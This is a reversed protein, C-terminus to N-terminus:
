RVIAIKGVAGKSGDNRAAAVMYVGSAVPRGQPDKGNWTFTGGNSRGQHVLRGSPSLIKVDADATFGTVTILGTFGPEVPNPYAVLQGASMDDAPASADTQLSCLGKDTGIYLMGTAPDMAMAIINDSILPSNEQTYNALQEQNDASILYLGGGEVAMWKRGAGDVVIASVSAGALLYDALGSGDNRAVKVQTLHPVETTAGCYQAEVMLPGQSTGIWINGELDEALCKRTYYSLSTGDENVMDNGLTKVMQGTAPDFCFTRPNGWHNDNFWILGRSDEYLHRFAVEELPEWPLQASHDHWQGERDIMIFQNGRELSRDGSASNLLWLRGQRDYMVSEIFLRKFWNDSQAPDRRSYLRSQNAPQLFSVIHGDRFEYLGARCGGYVHGPELPDETLSMMDVWLMSDIASQAPEDYIFWDGTAPDLAQPTAPTELDYSLYYGLDATLLRSNSFTLFGFENYKPGGPSLTRVRDIWRDWDATDDAFLDDQAGVTTWNWPNDLSLSTDGYLTVGNATLVYLGAPRSATPQAVLRVKKANGDLRYTEALLRKALDLRVVGFATALYADSGEVTVDNITKDMTTAKNYLESLLTVDGDATMLDINANDYTIVLLGQAKAWAIHSIGTDSLGGVKSYTTITQDAPNYQYLAGSARVFVCEPSAEVIQQPEHYSPYDRWHGTQATAAAACATLLLISLTRM